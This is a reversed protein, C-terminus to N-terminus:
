ARLQEFRNIMTEANAYGIAVQHWDEGVRAIVSPFSGIGSEKAWVFDAMTAKRTAEDNFTALFTDPHIQTGELLPLYTEPNNTDQNEAYFDHQVRKFFDFAHDPNLGRVTVVARCPPETDYVFADEGDLLDFCFPQGSRAGVEEWHHRLFEKFKRSMPENIFPRLGGMVVKFPVEGAYTTRLKELDPAIGWCWSCLPDGVYVIETENQM